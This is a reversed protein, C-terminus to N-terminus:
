SCFTERVEVRDDARQSPRQCKTSPFDKDRYENDGGVNVTLSTSCVRETALTSLSKIKVSSSVRLCKDYRQPVEFLM